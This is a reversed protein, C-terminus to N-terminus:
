LRYPQCHSQSLRVILFGKVEFSSHQFDFNVFFECSESQLIAFFFPVLHFFQWLPKVQDFGHFVTWLCLLYLCSVTLLRKSKKSTPPPPVCTLPEVRMELRCNHTPSNEVMARKARRVWYPFHSQEYDVVTLVQKYLATFLVIHFLPQIPKMQITLNFSKM